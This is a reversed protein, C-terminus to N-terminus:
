MWWLCRLTKISRPDLHATLWPYIQPKRERDLTRLSRFPNGPGGLDPFPLPLLRSSFLYGAQNLRMERFGTGFNTVSASSRDGPEGNIRFCAPTLRSAKGQKASKSKLLYYTSSKPEWHPVVWVPQHTFSAMLKQSATILCHMTSLLEACKRM